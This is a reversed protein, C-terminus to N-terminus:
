YDKFNNEQFIDFLFEISFFYILSLNRIKDIRLISNLQFIDL